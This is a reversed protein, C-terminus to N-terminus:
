LPEILVTAGSPLSLEGEPLVILCNSRAM